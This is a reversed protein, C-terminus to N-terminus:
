ARTDSFRPTTIVLVPVPAPLAAPADTSAKDAHEGIRCTVVVTSRGMKDNTSPM